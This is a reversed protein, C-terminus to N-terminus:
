ASSAARGSSVTWPPGTASCAISSSRISPIPMRSAGSTPQRGASPPFSATTSSTSTLPPRRWRMGFPSSGRFRHHARLATPARDRVGGRDLGSALPHRAPSLRFIHSIRELARRGAEGGVEVDSAPIAAVVLTRSAQRAAEALAQAFTLNAEFSGAPLGEVGELQRLFAVWEDILVLCPAFLEFLDRLLDSGPSVGKEDAEAILGYGDAGGLQWAMEGWLTRTLTGDPKRRPNCPSLATGVLVARHAAAPRDVGAEVLLPSIGPLEETPAGSFLHYLALMSHTKGGGFNTQLDM